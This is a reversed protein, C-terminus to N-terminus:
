KIKFILSEHTGIDLTISKIKGGVKNKVIERKRSSELTVDKCPMNVFDLTIRHTKGIKANDHDSYDILLMCKEGKENTFLTIGVGKETKIAPKVNKDLYNELVSRMIRSTNVRSTEPIVFKVINDIGVRSASVNITLARDKQLIVPLGNDGTVLVKADVNENIFEGDVQAISEKDGDCILNKVFSITTNQKVGFIDSLKGVKGVLILNVGQAYLEKVKDIVQDSAKDMSPLVLTHVDKTTLSLISEYNVLFGDIGMERAVRNVFTLGAESNNQFCRYSIDHYYRDDDSTIEYLYAVGKMPKSPSNEKFVGLDQLIVKMKDGGKSGYEYLVYSNDRWYKFGDKTLRPTNYVYEAMQTINGYHPHNYEGFPPRGYGTFGDVCGILFSNYIEPFIKVNPALANITQLGWSSATSSYSCCFTYDEYQYFGDFIEDAHTLDVGFWKSGYGSIAPSSYLSYPGYSSRKANPNVKKVEKWQEKFMERTVKNAYDVWDAHCVDLFRFMDQRDPNTFTEPMETYGLEKAYKPYEKLFDRVLDKFKDGYIREEAYDYRYDLPCDLIGPYYWNIYDGHKMAESNLFKGSKLDEKYVCRTTCWLFSERRYIKFLQWAKTKEFVFANIEAITRYHIDNNDPKLGWFDPAATSQNIHMGDGTYSDPIGSAKQPTTKNEVDYVEFASVHSEVKNGKLYVDFVVHYVGTKLPKIVACYNYRNIGILGDIQGLADVKVDKIHKFFADQLSAKVQIENIDENTNLELNFNVCEDDFFYHNGRLHEIAEDRDVLDEPFMNLIRENLPSFVRTAYENDLSKGSYLLNGSLDFVFERDGGLSGNRSTNFCKVGYYIELPSLSSLNVLYTNKIPLEPAYSFYTMANYREPFDEGAQISDYQYDLFLMENNSVYLREGNNIKVYPETVYDRNLAVVGIEELHKNSGDYGGDLTTTVACLDGQIKDIKVKVKYPVHEGCHCPIVFETEPLVNEIEGDFKADFCLDTLFIERFGEEKIFGVKGKLDKEVEVSLSYENLSALLVGNKVSVSVKQMEGDLIFPVVEQKVITAVNKIIKKITLTTDKNLEHRINFDYYYSEDDNYGVSVAWEIGSARFFPTGHKVCVSMNFDSVVPSKILHHAGMFIMNYGNDTVEGYPYDYFTHRKIEISYPMKNDNHLKLSDRFSFNM